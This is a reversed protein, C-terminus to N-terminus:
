HKGNSLWIKSLNESEANKGHSKYIRLSQCGKMRKRDFEPKRNKKELDNDKGIATCYSCVNVLFSSKPRM